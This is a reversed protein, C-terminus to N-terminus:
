EEGVFADRFFANPMNDDIYKLAIPRITFFLAAYLKNPYGDATMGWAMKHDYRSDIVPIAIDMVDKAQEPWMGQDSLVKEFKERTTM